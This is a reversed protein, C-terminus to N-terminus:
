SSQFACVAALVYQGPQVEAHAAAYQEDIYTNGNETTLRGGAPMADQANVVLNLLANELQNQDVFTHWLGAGFVTELAISEALMRRILDAMGSVLKNLDANTPQLTQKRSFALLRQSLGAGREAAERIAALRPREELTIPRQRQLLELNGLIVTLLNNFDHVVGGTLQGVAEMKQSQALQM